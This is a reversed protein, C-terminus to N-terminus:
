TIDDAVRDIKDSIRLATTFIKESRKDHERLVSAVERTAELDSSLADLVKQHMQSNQKMAETNGAIVENSRAIVHTAQGILQNQQEAQRNMIEMQQQYTKNREDYYVQMSKQSEDARKREATKSEEWVKLWKPTLKFLAYAFLLCFLAPIGISTVIEGFSQIEEM